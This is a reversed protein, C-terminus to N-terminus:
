RTSSQVTIHQFLLQGGREFGEHLAPVRRNNINRYVPAVTKPRDAMGDRFPQAGRPSDDGAVDRQPTAVHHPEPGIHGCPQCLRKRVQPKVIEAMDTVAPQVKIQDPGRRVACGVRRHDFARAFHNEIADHLFIAAAEAGFMPYPRAVDAM